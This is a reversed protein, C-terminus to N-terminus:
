NGSLRLKFFVNFIKYLEFKRIAHKSLEYYKLYLNMCKNYTIGSKKHDEFVHNYTIRSKFINQLQILFYDDYRTNQIM